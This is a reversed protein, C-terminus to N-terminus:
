GEQHVTTMVCLFWCSISKLKINATRWHKQEKKEYHLGV